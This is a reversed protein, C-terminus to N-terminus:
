IDDKYMEYLLHLYFVYIAKALCIYHRHLKGWLAQETSNSGDRCARSIRRRSDHAVKIVSEMSAMAEIAESM